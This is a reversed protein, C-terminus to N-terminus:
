DVQITLGVGVPLPAAPDVVVPEAVKLPDRGAGPDLGDGALKRVVLHLQDAVVVVELAADADVVELDAITADPLALDLLVVEPEGSPSHTPNKALNALQRSFNSKLAFAM